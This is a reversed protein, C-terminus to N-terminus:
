VKKIVYRDSPVMGSYIWTVPIIIKEPQTEKLPITGISIPHLDNFEFEFVKEQHNNLIILNGGVYFNRYYDYEQYKMHEEPNQSALLWYYLMRYIFWDEDNMLNMTMDGFELKGL